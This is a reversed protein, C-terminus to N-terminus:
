EHLELEGAKLKACTDAHGKAAEDRTAYRVGWVEIWEVIEEGEAPFIYTEYWTGGSHEISLSVTSVAYDGIYDRLALDRKRVELTM